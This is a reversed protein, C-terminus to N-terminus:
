FVKGAFFGLGFLVVFAGLFLLSLLLAIIGLVCGIGNMVGGKRAMLIAVISLLTGLVPIWCGLMALIGFVFGAFSHSHKVEKRKGTKASTRPKKAPM